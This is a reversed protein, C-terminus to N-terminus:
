ICIASGIMPLPLFIVARNWFKMKSNWFLLSISSIIYSYLLIFCKKYIKTLKQNVPRLTKIGFDCFVEIKIFNKLVRYQRQKALKSLLWKWRWKKKSWCTDLHFCTVQQHHLRYTSFIAISKIVSSFSKCGNQFMKLCLVNQLLGHEIFKVISKCWIFRNESQSEPETHM